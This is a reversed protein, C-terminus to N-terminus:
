DSIWFLLTIRFSLEKKVVVFNYQDIFLQWLLDNKAVYGNEHVSTFYRSYPHPPPLPRLFLYASTLTRFHHRGFKGLITGLKGTEDEIEAM